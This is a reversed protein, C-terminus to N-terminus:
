LSPPETRWNRCRYLAFTVFVALCDDRVDPWELDIHYILHQLYEISLGLACAAIVSQLQFARSPAVLLLLLATGGFALWHIERHLASARVPAPRAPQLSGIVLLLIWALAARRVTRPNKLFAALHTKWTVKMPNAGSSAESGPRPEMRITNTVAM